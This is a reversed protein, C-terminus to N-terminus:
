DDFEEAIDVLDKHNPIQIISADYMQKSWRKLDAESLPEIGFDDVLDRDRVMQHNTATRAGKGSRSIAWYHKSLPGQRTDASFNKLQDVVRVGVDYSKIGHEGDPSMLLVNFSFQSSPRNGADCLPCGRDDIDAICTFSKQGSREIWHRRYVAYPEDELFKVIIPDETVKLRQAYASETEQLRQAAGWGRKIVRAAPKTVEDDDDDDRSKKPAPRAPPTDEDDDDDAYRTAAKESPKSRAYTIEEEDDDYRGM